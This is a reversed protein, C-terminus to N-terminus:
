GHGIGHTGQGARSRAHGARGQAGSRAETEARAAASQEAALSAHASSPIVIPQYREATFDRDALDAQAQHTRRTCSVGRTGHAHARMCATCLGVSPRVSASALVCCVWEICARVLAMLEDLDNRELVSQMGPGADTTHRSQWTGGSAGGGQQAHPAHCAHAAHLLLGPTPADVPPLLARPAADRPAHRAM